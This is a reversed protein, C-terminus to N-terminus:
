PKENIVKLRDNIIQIMEPDDKYFDIVEKLYIADDCAGRQIAYLVSPRLIRESYDKLNM